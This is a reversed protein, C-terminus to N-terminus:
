HSLSVNILFETTEWFIPKISCCKDMTRSWSWHEISTSFVEIEVNTWPVNILIQPAWITCLSILYCKLQPITSRYDNNFILCRLAKLHLTLTGSSYLIESTIWRNYKPSERRIANTQSPTIEVKTPFSQEVLSEVVHDASLFRVTNSEM